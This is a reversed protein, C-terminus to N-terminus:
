ERGGEREGGVRACCYLVQNKPLPGLFQCWWSVGVRWELGAERSCKEVCEHACVCVLPFLAKWSKSFCVNFLSLNEPQQARDKGLLWHIAPKERSDFLSLFNFPILGSVLCPLLFPPPPSSIRVCADLRTRQGSVMCPIPLHTLWTCDLISEGPGADFGVVVTM